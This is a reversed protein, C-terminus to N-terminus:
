QLKWGRNTAIAKEASTLKNLNTTGLILTQGGPQENLGSGITYYDLSNLINLLSEHTLLESSSFNVVTNSKSSGIHTAKIRSFGGVYTLQKCNAFSNGTIDVEFNYKPIYRLGYCGYFADDMSVYSATSTINPAYILSYCNQFPSSLSSAKGINLDAVRKLSYDNSIWPDNGGDSDGTLVMSPIAVLNYCDSFAHIFNVVHSTDLKPIGIIYYNVFFAEEFSTDASADFKPVFKLNPADTPSSLVQLLTNYSTIRDKLAINAASVKFMDAFEPPQLNSEKFFKIDDDDWGLQRLGEEDATPVLYGSSSSPVNVDVSVSNFVKGTDPVYTTKGNETIVIDKAVETKIPVNVDVSVRNFVEGENPTYTTNGNETIVIDKAVETKSTSPINVDVSVGFMAGFGASPTITHTGNETITASVSEEVPAHTITVKNFGDTGEPPVIVKETETLLIEANTETLTASKGGPCFDINALNINM